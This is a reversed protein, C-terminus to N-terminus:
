SLKESALVEREGRATQTNDPRNHAKGCTRSLPSRAAGPPGAPFSTSGDSCTRGRTHSVAGPWWPVGSRRAVWGAKGM